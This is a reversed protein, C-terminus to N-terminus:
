SADEKELLKLAEEIKEAKEEAEDAWEELSKAFTRAAEPSMIFRITETKETNSLGAGIFEIKRELTTLVAEIEPRIPKKADKDDLLFVRINRATVILEQM